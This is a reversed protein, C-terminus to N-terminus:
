GSPARPPRPLYVRITTGQDSTHVRVLDALDNVLLLGRGGVQGHAAPRRGALPDTLQGADAVQCILQDAEPWIRLEGPCGAHLVSNTLLETAILELDAIGEAALGHRRGQEAAFHRAAALDGYTAVTVYAGDAPAPLPLNYRDIVAFPAYERSDRRQEADWLLPHTAEADALIRPELRVADYPCVITVERGTFAANILAEHQVCAPYEEASRGSWIPEGIIRVHRDPHSDAFARLVGPIIRGPNLGAQRMDLLRVRTADSGLAQRLLDLRDGPVAAAVPEGRALGDTVFPVLGHLYEEDSRYFLAPHVFREDEGETTPTM